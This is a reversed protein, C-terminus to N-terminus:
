SLEFVNIVFVISKVLSFPCVIVKCTLVSNRSVEAPPHCSLVPLQYIDVVYIIEATSSRVREDTDVATCFIMVFAAFVVIPITGM